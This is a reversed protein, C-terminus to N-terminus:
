YPAPAKEAKRGLAELAVPRIAKEWAAYGRASPHLGDEAVLSRDATAERSLEFVDVVRAGHRSAEEVVIENFRALGAAIDRGGSYRPGQPTVSFDPITVVILRDKSPLRAQLWEILHVLDKRFDDESRSRVWDNVGIQLSALDFRDGLKEIQPLEREIAHRATYGTVSPNAVLDVDVGAARLSAVLVAPWAEEAKAGEGKSYSDGVAVYRLKGEPGPAPRKPTEEQGVGRGCAALVLLAAVLATRAARATCAVRMM